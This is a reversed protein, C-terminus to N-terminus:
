NFIIEYINNKRMIGYSCIFREINVNNNNIQKWLFGEFTHPCETKIINNINEYTLMIKEMTNVNGLFYQDMMYMTVITYKGHSFPMYICNNLLSKKIIGIDIINNYIIDPRM